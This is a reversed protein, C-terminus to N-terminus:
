VDEAFKAAMKQFFYYGSCFIVIILIQPIFSFVWYDGTSLIEYGLILSRSNQIIQSLPSLMIFRALDFPVLTIPYVIPTAYFLIQNAVEWIHGIDRFKVFFAALYFSVGLIFIYLEFIYFIFLPLTFNFDVGLYTAFLLVVVMNLAYTMLSTLTASIVLIIRPFYIKRILDGKYAISGMAVSTAESWFGFTVVGILLYVPYFLIDTGVRFIQSFVFYLVSFYALPKVLSWLYGFVSGQYKLKFDTIAIEKILHIYKYKDGFQYM